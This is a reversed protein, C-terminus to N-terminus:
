MKATTMTESDKNYDDGPHYCNSSAVWDLWAYGNWNPWEGTYITPHVFKDALKM